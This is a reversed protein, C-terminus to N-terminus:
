STPPTGTAKAKAKAKGKPAATAKAKAAPQPAGAASERMERRESTAARHNIVLVLDSTPIRDLKQLLRQRKREENRLAAGRRKKRM